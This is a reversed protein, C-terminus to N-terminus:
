SMGWIFFIFCYFVVCYFEFFFFVTGKTNDLLLKGKKTEDITEKITDNGKEFQWKSINCLNWGGREEEYWLWGNYFQQVLLMDWCLVDGVMCEGVGEGEREWEQCTAFECHMVSQNFLWCHWADIPNSGTQVAGYIGNDHSKWFTSQGDKGAEWAVHSDNCSTCHNTCCMPIPAATLPLPKLLTTSPRALWQQLRRHSLAERLGRCGLLDDRGGVRHGRVCSLLQM